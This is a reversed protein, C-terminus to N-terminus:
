GGAPKVGTPPYTTIVQWATDWVVNAFDEDVSYPGKWFRLGKTIYGHPDDAFVTAYHTVAELYKGESKLHVGDAYLHAIHRYGAVKGERMRLHFQCMVEDVPIIRVPKKDPFKASIGRAVREFNM